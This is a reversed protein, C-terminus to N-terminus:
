RVFISHLFSKHSMLMLIIYLDKEDAVAVDAAGGHGLEDHLVHYFFATLGVTKVNGGRGGAALFDAIRNM